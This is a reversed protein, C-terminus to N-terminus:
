AICTLMLKYIFLVCSIYPTVCLTTDLMMQQRRKGVVILQARSEPSQCQKFVYCEIM